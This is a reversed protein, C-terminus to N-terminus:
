VGAALGIAEIILDVAQDPGLISTDIVLEADTPPEYPDSVGTFSQLAGARARAYLGKPDRQECIALPTAVYVLVFRGAAEVTQRAHLRAAEYPAILACVAIGGRNMIDAALSAVHAIHKERETRSFGVPQAYGARVEDGDLIV